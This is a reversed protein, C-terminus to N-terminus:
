YTISALTRWAAGDYVRIALTRSPSVGSFEFYIDDQVPVAPLTTPDMESPLIKATDTGDAVTRIKSPRIAM